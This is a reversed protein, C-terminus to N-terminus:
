RVELLKKIEPKDLFNEALPMLEYWSVGSKDASNKLIGCAEILISQLKDRKDRMQEYSKLLTDRDDELEKVKAELTQREQEYATTVKMWEVRDRELEECREKYPHYAEFLKREFSSLENNKYKEELEKDSNSM